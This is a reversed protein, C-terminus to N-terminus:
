LKKIIEKGKKTINKGQKKVKTIISQEKNKRKMMEQLRGREIAKEYVKLEKRAIELEDKQSVTEGVEFKIKKYSEEDLNSLYKLYKYMEKETNFLYGNKGEEIQDKNIEDVRQLVPLGMAMAELMSISNMESLSSTLYLKSMMYYAPLDEHEVRGTFRVKDSIGLKNALEKFENLAPGDGIVVFYINDDKQLTKALYELTVDISKESAVRGVFCAIFADQPINLKARLNNVDQVNVKQPDFLNMEVSNPLIRVKKKHSAKKIYEFCKESPGVIAKSKKAYIGLYKDVIKNGVRALVKPMVYYIYDDYSTHLTYVLTKNLKKAAYIGFLGMSFENHVHIIDPNFDALMKLRTKSYPSSVGFGYLNKLKIAPCYLVGDEIYHKKAEPSATVVLVEHGLETLGDKLTKIHTTVGNIHPFYTESLLAVKM